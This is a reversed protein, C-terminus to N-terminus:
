QPGKAIYRTLLAVLDSFLNRGCYRSYWEYHAEAESRVDVDALGRELRQMAEMAVLAADALAATKKGLYVEPQELELGKVLRSWGTDFQSTRRAYDIVSVLRALRAEHATAATGDGQRWERLQQLHDRLAYLYVMDAQELPKTANRCAEKSEYLIGYHAYFM